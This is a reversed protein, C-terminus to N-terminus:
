IVRFNGNNSCETKWNLKLKIGAIRLKQVKKGSWLLDVSLQYYFGKLVLTTMSQIQALCSLNVLVYRSLDVMLLDFAENRFNLSFIRLFKVFCFLWISEFQMGVTIISISVGTQINRKTKSQISQFSQSICFPFSAFMMLLQVVCSRIM